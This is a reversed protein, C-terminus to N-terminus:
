HKNQTSLKIDGVHLSFKASTVQVVYVRSCMEMLCVQLDSMINTGNLYLVCVCFLICNLMNNMEQEEFERIV